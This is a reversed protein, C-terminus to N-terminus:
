ANTRYPNFTFGNREIDKLVAHTRHSAILKRSGREELLRELLKSAIKFSPERFPKFTFVYHVILEDKSMTACIWSFVQKEYEPDCAVLTITDRKGLLDKIYQQHEAFYTDRDVGILRPPKDNWYSRLWSSLIANRDRDDAFRIRIAPSDSM